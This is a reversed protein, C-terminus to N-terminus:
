VLNLEKCFSIFPLVRINGDVVYDREKMHVQYFKPINTRERFYHLSPGVSRDGSKCEVAFIPKKNQVVVFDIERNNTDRLYRLEMKYGQTDELYHCYKLLHSAVLNEFRPGEESISAWDWLYLKKTKKIARVKPAGFPLICYCYYVNELIEIWHAITRPNVGLDEALANHSLLSGVRDPLAEALSEILSYEKLNELDAIDDNVIRYLRERQWLRAEKESKAFLPEPFGGFSLLEQLDSTSSMKLESVSFPHLRFYRYRGLLSDGGKRYHDLRASGTLLIKKEDHQTDYIGKILNRWYKYKHIEDFILTPASPLEAKKIQSKRRVDDWNLYAPNTILSPKIFELCLTTKGVQRPGGIFVMKKELAEQIELFLYRKTKHKDNKALGVDM